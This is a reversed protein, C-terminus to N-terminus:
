SQTTSTDRSGLARGGEERLMELAEEVKSLELTALAIHYDGAGYYIFLREGILTAGCPYALTREYWSNPELIPEDPRLLVKEPDDKDLVMLGIKYRYGDDVKFMSPKLGLNYFSPDFGSVGHYIALWGFRTKIPPPGMGIKRSDWKEPRITFCPRGFIFREGDFDLTEVYDIWINPFIRHFFVFKGRVKEPLLVCNKDPIGPPSIIKPKEWEWNWSLFDNVKISTIAVRPPEIGNFAVYTMYIRNGIRTLRPDECGCYSGGCVYKWNVAAREIKKELSVKGDKLSPHVEFDERPVYIPEDSREDVEYGDRSTALMFTSINNASIARYVLYTKGNLRIAGPNFSGGCDWRNNERPSIIPNKEYKEAKIVVGKKKLASEVGM